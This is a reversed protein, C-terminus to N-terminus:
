PESGAHNALHWMAAIERESMHADKVKWEVVERVKQAVEARDFRSVFDNVFAARSWELLKAMVHGGPIEGASMLVWALAVDVNPDGLCANAWDIVVPGNRGMIVNLPHLDLHLVRDGCGLPAPGLFDPSLVDHLQQHLDALVGSLRRLAWPSHALREVMSPGDIREIVLDARDASLEDVAPVPYGQHHLYEMIQAEHAMSNGDRSRRLVLAPGYEFIDADRGSALLRGPARM